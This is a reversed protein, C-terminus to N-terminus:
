TTAGDAQEYNLQSGRLSVGEPVSRVISRFHDLAADLSDWETWVSAWPDALGAALFVMGKDSQSGLVAVVNGGISVLWGRGGNWGLRIERKTIRM